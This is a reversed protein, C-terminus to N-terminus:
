PLLVGAQDIYEFGQKIRFAPGNDARITLDVLGPSEAKPSIAVLTETNKITVHPAQRKGFYVTYGIDLRLNKGIIRIRKGGFLGGFDPEVRLIQMESSRKTCAPAVLMSAAVISIWAARRLFRDKHTM